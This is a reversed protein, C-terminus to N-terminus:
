SRGLRVNEDILSQGIRLYREYNAKLGADRQNKYHLMGTSSVADHYNTELYWDAVIEAQQEVNFERWTRNESAGFYYFYYKEYVRERAVTHQGVFMELAECSFVNLGGNFSQWAHTMEHILTHKLDSTALYDNYGSEKAGILVTGDPCPTAFPHGRDDELNTITIKEYPITDGFVKRAEAIESPRLPRGKFLLSSVAAGAIFVPIFGTPGALFYQGQAALLGAVGLESPLRVDTADGLIRAGYTVLATPGGLLACTAVFKVVDVFASTIWSTLTNEYEKRVDFTGLVFDDWFENLLPDLGSQTDDFDRSGTSLTGHTKGSSHRAFVKGSTAHLLAAIRFTYNPAGSDHMHVSLSYTGDGRVTLDVSGGLAEPDPTTIGEHFKRETRHILDTLSVPAQFGHAAAYARLSVDGHLGDLAALTRLKRM